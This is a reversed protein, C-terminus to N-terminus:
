SLKNNLGHWGGSNYVESFGSNLLISKAAASRAGSACCTIVPKNKNIKGLNQNLSQLPINKAGKVHGGNFEAPTRVDIIQAGNKVLEKYDVSNGGFLNKLFGFM